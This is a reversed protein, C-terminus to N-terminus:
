CKTCKQYFTKSYVHQDENYVPIIGYTEYISNNNKIITDYKLRAVYAGSDVPIVNKKVVSDGMSLNNTAIANVNKKTTYTSYNTAYTKDVITSASRIRKDYCCSQSNGESNKGLMKLKDGVQLCQGQKRYGKIPRTPPTGNIAEPANLVLRQRNLYLHFM